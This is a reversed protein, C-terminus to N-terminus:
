KAVRVWEWIACAPERPDLILVPASLVEGKDAGGWRRDLERGQSSLCPEAGHECTTLSSLRDGYRGLIATRTLM